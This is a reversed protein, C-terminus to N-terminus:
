EAFLMATMGDEKEINSLELLQIKGILHDTSTYIKSMIDDEQKSLIFKPSEIILCTLSLM